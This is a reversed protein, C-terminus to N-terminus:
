PSKCNLQFLHFMPRGILISMLILVGLYKVSKSPALFTGDLKIQPTYDLCKWPSTQICFHLDNIYLLFFHGWSLARLFEM